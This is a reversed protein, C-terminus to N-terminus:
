ACVSGPFSRDFFDRQAGTATLSVIKRDTLPITSM